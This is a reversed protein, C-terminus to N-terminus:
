CLEQTDAPQQKLLQRLQQTNSLAMIIISTFNIESKLREIVGAVESTNLCATSSFQSVRSNLVSNWMSNEDLGKERANSVIQLLEWFNSKATPIQCVLGISGHTVEYFM